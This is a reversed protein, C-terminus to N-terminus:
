SMWHRPLSRRGTGVSIFVAAILIMVNQTFLMVILVAIVAFSIGILAAGFVFYNTPQGILKINYGAGSKRRKRVLFLFLGSVFLLNALHKTMEKIVLTVGDANKM